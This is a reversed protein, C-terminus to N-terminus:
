VISKLLSELYIIFEKGIRSIDTPLSLIYEAMEKTINERKIPDEILWPKVKIARMCQEPTQEMHTICYPEAELVADEIDKTLCKKPIRGYAWWCRKASEVIIEKTLYKAGIYQINSGAMNSNPASPAPSTIALYALESSMYMDPVNKIDEGDAGVTIYCLEETIFEKPILNLCPYRSKAAAICMEKDIFKRPVHEITAGNRSVASLCNEYTKFKELCFQIAWCSSKIGADVLEQTQVESPMNQMTWGNEEAAALCLIYYEEAKLLHPKISCISYENNCIAIKCLEYTILEDKVYGISPGWNTVSEEVSEPTQEFTDRNKETILLSHHRALIPHLSITSRGYTVKLHLSKNPLDSEYDSDAEIESFSISECDSIPECEAESM